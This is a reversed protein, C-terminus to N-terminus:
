DAAMLTPEPCASADAAVRSREFPSQELNRDAVDGYSVRLSASEDTGISTDDELLGSGANLLV